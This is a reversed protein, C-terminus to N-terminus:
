RQCKGRVGFSLTILIPRVTALFFHHIPHPHPPTSLSCNSRCMIELLQHSFINRIRFIPIVANHQKLFTGSCFKSSWHWGFLRRGVFSLLEIHFVYISAVDKFLSNSDKTLYPYCVSLWILPKHLITANSSTNM